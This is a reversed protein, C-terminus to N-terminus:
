DGVRALRKTGRYSERNIADMMKRADVSENGSSQLTINATTSYNNVTGGKVKGGFQFHGRPQTVWGGDNFFGPRPGSFDFPSWTRDPTKAFYPKVLNRRRQLEELKKARHATYAAGTGKVGQFLGGLLMSQLVSFGAAGIGAMKKKSPDEEAQYGGYGSVGAFAAMSAASKLGTPIMGAAILAPL